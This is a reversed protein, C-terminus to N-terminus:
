HAVSVLCPKGGDQDLSNVEDAMVLSSAARLGSATM